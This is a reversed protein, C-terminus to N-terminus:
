VTSTSSLTFESSKNTANTNKLAIATRAGTGPDSTIQFTGTGKLTHNIGINTDGGSATLTPNNGTAANALTLENIASGTATFKFLENGNTDNLATIIKPSTLTMTTGDSTANTIGGFVGSNNYQLQTNSGGPTGGAGFGTITSGANANITAGSQINLTSGSPVNTTGPLVHTQASALVPILFLIAVLKKM